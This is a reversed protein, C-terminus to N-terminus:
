RNKWRFPLISRHGLILLGAVSGVLCAVVGSYMLGSICIKKLQTLTHRELIDRIPHANRDEPDKVFWM